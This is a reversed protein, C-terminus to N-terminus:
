SRAYSPRQLKAASASNVDHEATDRDGVYFTGDRWTAHKVIALM